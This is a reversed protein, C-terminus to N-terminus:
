KHKMALASGKTGTSHGAPLLPAATSICVGELAEATLAQVARPAGLYNESLDRWQQAFWLQELM